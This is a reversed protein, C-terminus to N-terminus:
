LNRNLGFAGTQLKRAWLAEMALVDDATDASGAVQLVSAVWDRVGHERLGVNGGHGNGAYAMWRGWFGEAGDAKGVYMQGTAPCTLMYVGRAAALAAIWSPPAAAIRSIPEALQLLGPFPREAVDLHLETILKDQNAALQRRARKGTRGGAWDIYLRAAYQGLRDSLVCPYHDDVGAAIAIGTAEQRYSEAVTEPEGVAYLGVFMTRGDDTGVFSAWWSGRFWARQDVPQISQYADVGQRDSRWLDLPSRGDPLITQHRLLRTAGPDVGAEELLQNFRFPM